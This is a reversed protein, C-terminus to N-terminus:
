DTEDAVTDSDDKMRQELRASAAKISSENAWPSKTLAVQEYLILSERYNGLKFLANARQYMSWNQDDTVPDAFPTVGEMTENDPKLAMGYADVAARYDEREFLFDGWSTAAQQAQIIKMPDNSSMAEQALESVLARARASKGMSLNVDLLRQIGRPTRADPQTTHANELWELARDPNVRTLANGHANMYKYKTDPTLKALDIRNELALGEELHDAQYLAMASKALQEPEDTMATIAGQAAAVREWLGLEAYLDSTAQLIAMKQAQNTSLLALSELQEAAQTLHGQAFNVKAIEIGGMTSQSSRPFDRILFQLANKADDYQEVEAYLRGARLLIDPNEAGAEHAAVWTRAADGPKGFDALLHGTEELVEPNNPYRQVTQTATRVGEREYGLDKLVKALEIYASPTVPSEPFFDILGNLTNRADEYRKKVRYIKALLLMAGDNGEVTTGNSIRNELERIANDFDGSEYDLNGLRLIALDGTQDNIHDEAVEIYMKRAQEVDGLEKYADGLLIHADGAKLSAPHNRRLQQLYNAAQRPRDTNLELGGLAFLVEDSQSSTPDNTLINRYELRAALMNGQKEYIKGKIFLARTKDPHMPSNEIVSDIRSHMINAQDVDLKDPQLRYEAELLLYDADVRYVSQPSSGIGESLRQYAGEYNGDEMLERSLALARKLTDSQNIVGSQLTGYSQLRHTMLYSFSSITVILGAAIGTILRTGQGEMVSSFNPFSLLKGSEPRREDMMEDGAIRVEEEEPVTSESEGGSLEVSQSVLAGAAANEAAVTAVEEPAAEATIEDAENVAPEIDSDAPETVEDLQDDVVIALEEDDKGDLRDDMDQDILAEESDGDILLSDPDGEAMQAL